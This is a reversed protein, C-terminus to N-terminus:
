SLLVSRAAWIGLAVFGGFVLSAAILSHMHNKITVEKGEDKMLTGSLSQSEINIRRLKAEQRKPFTVTLLGQKYAATSKEHDVYNPLRFSCSFMGAATNRAYWTKGESTDHKREGNIRLMDNEVEVDIQNAELGPLAMQVTFGQEDEFVDFAPDWPRSWENVSQIADDLLRDIQLDVSRNRFVVPLQNLVMM